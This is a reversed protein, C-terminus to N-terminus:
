PPKFQDTTTVEFGFRGYYAPYGYVLVTYEDRARLQEICTKILLSGIGKSQAKPLIGLPSLMFGAWNPLGADSVSTFAILGVIKGDCAAILALLDTADLERLLTCALQTVLGRESEHFSQLYVRHIGRSDASMTNRIMTRLVQM